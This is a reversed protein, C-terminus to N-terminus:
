QIKKVDTPGCELATNESDYKGSATVADGDKIGLQELTTGSINATVTKVISPHETDELKIMTLVGSITFSVTGQVTVTQGNYKAGNDLLENVSMAAHRECGAVALVVLVVWLVIWIRRM